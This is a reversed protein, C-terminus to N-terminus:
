VYRKLNELCRPLNQLYQAHMDGRGFVNAVCKHMVLRVGAKECVQAIAAGEMDRLDIGLARMKVAAVDSNSFGDGTGLRLGEGGCPIWPTTHDDLTGLPTKNIGCLDVDYQMAEAVRYVAGTQVEDSFGGCVGLNYITETGTLQLALMTAAAANVKGVGSIFVVVEEGHLLGEVRTFGQVISTKSQTLQALVCDAEKAMAIVYVKM